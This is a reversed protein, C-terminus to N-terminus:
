GITPTATIASTLPQYDPKSVENKPQLSLHTNSNHQRTKHLLAAEGLAAIRPNIGKLAELKQPDKLSACLMYPNHMLREYIPLAENKIFQQIVNSHSWTTSIDRDQDCVSDICTSYAANKFWHNDCCQKSWAELSINDPIPYSTHPTLDQEWHNIVATPNWGFHTAIEKLSQEPDLKTVVSDILAFRKEPHSTIHNETRRVFCELQQYAMTNYQVCKEEANVKAQIDTLEPHQNIEDKKFAEISSKTQLYPDRVTFLVNKSINLLNDFEAQSILHSMDKAIIKIPFM